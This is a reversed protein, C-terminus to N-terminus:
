IVMLVRRLVRLGASVGPQAAPNRRQVSGEEISGSHRRLQRSRDVADNVAGRQGAIPPGYADYLLAPHAGQGEV